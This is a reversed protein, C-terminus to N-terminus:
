VDNVVWFSLEKNLFTGDLRKLNLKLLFAGSPMTSDVFFKCKIKKGWSDCDIFRKEGYPDILDILFEYGNGFVEPDVAIKFEQEGPECYINKLDLPIIERKAGM